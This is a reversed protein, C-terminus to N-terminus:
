IIGCELLKSEVTDLKSFDWDCPYLTCFCLADKVPCENCHSMNKCEEKLAKALEIMKTNV